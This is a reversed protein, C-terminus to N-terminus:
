TENGGIAADMKATLARDREAAATQYIMATHMDTHGGRKMIEKLTAGTRAFETLGVHRLDHFRLGPRVQDRAARWHRDLASQALPRAPNHVGPFVPADPAPAVYKALHEVVKVAISAPVYVKRASGRKPEQYAPPSAKSHWQRAIQVQAGDPTNLGTFDRRQLGLVEGQRLACWAALLVSLALRDPMAAALRRVEDPTATREDLDAVQGVPGKGIKVKVPNDEVGGAQATIAANFMARVTRAVNRAASEGKLRAEDLLADIHEPTVEKLNLDGIPTLVHTALTSRYSRVTGPSRAPDTFKAARRAKDDGSLAELWVDAWARVTIQERLEQERLAKVQARRVKPPVFTGRAKQGEAIVLAAKADALTTFVGVHHQQYDVYIRVRYGSGIKDIGRPLKKKSLM